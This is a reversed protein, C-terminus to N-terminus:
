KENKEHLVTIKERLSEIQATKTEVEAKYKANDEVIRAVSQMLVVGNLYESEGVILSFQFLFYFLFCILFLRCQQGKVQIKLLPSNTMKTYLDDMKGSVNELASRLELQAERDNASM